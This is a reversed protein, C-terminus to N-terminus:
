RLAVFKEDRKGIWIIGNWSLPLSPYKLWRYNWTSITAGLYNVVCDRSIAVESYRKKVDWPIIKSMRQCSQWLEWHGNTQVEHVLHTKTQKALGPRVQQQVKKCASGEVQSYFPATLLELLSTNNGPQCPTNVTNTNAISTWIGTGVQKKFLYKSLINIHLVISKAETVSPWMCITNLQQLYFTHNKKETM